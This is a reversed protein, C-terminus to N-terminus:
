SVPAECMRKGHWYRYSTITPGEAKYDVEIMDGPEGCLPCETAVLRPAEGNIRYFPEEPWAAIDDSYTPKSM